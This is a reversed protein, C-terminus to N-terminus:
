LRPYITLRDRERLPFCHASVPQILSPKPLRDLDNGWASFPKNIKWIDANILPSKAMTEFRSGLKNQINPYASIMNDARYGLVSTKVDQGVRIRVVPSTYSNGAPVYTKFTHMTYFTGAQSASNDVFGFSAAQVPGDPNLSYLAFHGGAIDLALYDAFAAFGPYTTTFQKAVPLFGTFFGPKLRVGPSIFPGFGAQVNNSSFLLESPFNVGTLLSGWYNIITLKLDFYNSNSVTISIEADVRQTSSNDGLYNLTLINNSGDWKYSFRNGWTPSFSCGGVYNTNPSNFIAGWLCGHKSGLTLSSKSTKEALDTISGNFKNLSLQFNANGLILTSEAGEDFYINTATVAAFTNSIGILPVIISLVLYPLCFQSIKRTFSRLTYKNIFMTTFKQM